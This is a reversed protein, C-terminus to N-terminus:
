KVGAEALADRAVDSLYDIYDGDEFSYSGIEKLAKVLVPYTNCAQAIYDANADFEKHFGEMAEIPDLVGEAFLANFIKQRLSENAWTPCDVSIGWNWPVSAPWGRPPPVEIIFGYCTSQTWPLPTHETRM